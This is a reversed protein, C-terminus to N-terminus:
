CPRVSVMQAFTNLPGAGSAVHRIDIFDKLSDAAAVVGFGGESLGLMSGVNALQSCGHTEDKLHLGTAAYSVVAAQAYSEIMNTRSFSTSEGYGIYDPFISVVGSSAVLVGALFDQFAILFDAFGNNAITTQLTESISTPWKETPCDALDTVFSHMHVFGPINGIIPDTENIISNAPIFVLSSHTAESGHVNAGCFNDFSEAVTNSYSYGDWHKWVDNCSGCVKRVTLGYKVFPTILQDTLTEQFDQLGALGLASQLLTEAFFQVEEVTLTAIESNCAPRPDGAQLQRLQHNSGGRTASTAVVLLLSLTNKLTSLKM